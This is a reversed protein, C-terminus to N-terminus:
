TAVTSGRSDKAPEASFRLMYLAQWVAGTDLGERFQKLSVGRRNRDDATMYEVLRRLEAMQQTEGQLRFADRVDAACELFSRDLDAMTYRPFQWFRGLSDRFGIKKKTRM